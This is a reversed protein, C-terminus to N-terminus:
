EGGSQSGPPGLGPLRPRRKGSGCLGGFPCHGRVTPGAGQCERNGNQGTELKGEKGLYTDGAFVLAMSSKGTEVNRLNAVSGGSPEFRVHVGALNRNVLEALGTALIQFTGGQPGGGMVLSTERKNCGSGIILVLALLLGAVPAIRRMRRIASLCLM